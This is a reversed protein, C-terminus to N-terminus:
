CLGYIYGLQHPINPSIRCCVSCICLVSKKCIYTQTHKNLQNREHLMLLSPWRIAHHLNAFTWMHDFVAGKLSGESQLRLSKFHYKCFPLFWCILRQSTCTVHCLAAFSPRSLNLVMLLPKNFFLFSKM